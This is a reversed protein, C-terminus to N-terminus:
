QQANGPTAANGSASHKYLDNPRFKGPKTAATSQHQYQHSEQQQPHKSISNNIHM